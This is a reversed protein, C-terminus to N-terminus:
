IGIGRGTEGRGRERSGDRYVERRFRGRWDHRFLLAAVETADEDDAAVAEEAVVDDVLGEGGPGGGGHGGDVQAALLVAVRGRGVLLNVNGVGLLQQRRELLQLRIHDDVRRRGSSRIVGIRLLQELLDVHISGITHDLRTLLRPHLRQDVRTGRTDNAIIHIIQVIGILPVGDEGTVLLVRVVGVSLYAGREIVRYDYPCQCDCAWASSATMAAFRWSSELSRVQAM